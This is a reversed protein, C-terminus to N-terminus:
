DQSPAPQAQATQGNDSASASTTQHYDCASAAVSLAALVVCSLALTALLKLM